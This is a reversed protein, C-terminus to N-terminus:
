AAEARGDLWDRRREIMQACGECHEQDYGDVEVAFVIPEGCAPCTPQRDLFGVINRWM